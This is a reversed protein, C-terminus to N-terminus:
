ITLPWVRMYWFSEIDQEKYMFSFYELMEYHSQVQKLVETLEEVKAPAAVIHERTLTLEKEDTPDHTINNKMESYTQYVTQVTSACYDYTAQLIREKVQKAQDGLEQKLRNTSVRFIRFDVDDESLTMIQYHAEDYHEIQAKIEELSKKPLAETGDGFLGKILEKQDM